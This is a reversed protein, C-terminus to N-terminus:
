ETLSEFGMKILPFLMGTKLGICPTADPDKLVVVGKDTNLNAGLLHLKNALMELMAAQEEQRQLILQLCDDNALVTPWNLDKEEM